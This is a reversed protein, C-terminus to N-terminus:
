RRRGLPPTRASLRLQASAANKLTDPDQLLGPEGMALHHDDRDRDADAHTNLGQGLDKPGRDGMKCIIKRDVVV